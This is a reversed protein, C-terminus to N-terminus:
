AEAIKRESWLDHWYRLSAEKWHPMEIVGAARFKANNLDVHLSRPAPSRFDSTTTKVIVRSDFGWITCLHKAWDCKSVAGQCAVHYLGGSLGFWLSSGVAHALLPAPTPNGIVDTVVPIETQGARLQSRLRSPFNSSSNASYLWSTRAVIARSNEELVAVEGALKSQGYVSIPDPTDSEKYPSCSKGSFVAETSIHVLPIKLRDTAKALCAPFKANISWAENVHTEAADVNTWAACNIVADCAVASIREHLFDQDVRVDSRNM